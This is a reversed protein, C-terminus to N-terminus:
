RRSTGAPCRAWRRRRRPPGSTSNRRGARGRQQRDRRPPPQHRLRVAAPQVPRAGHQRGRLLRRDARRGAPRGPRLGRGGRLRQAPTAHTLDHGDLTVRGAATPRLGMLAECLETQGNGQVGAVGLIEGARVQFSMGNVWVRGTEDAVTLDSVDLVVEGPKAAEKSVRLQVNRGVMLAALEDETASPPREGVVAGRRLVTITDAIAQVEKLKHSIFVVSTGGDQHAAPHDPVPGRDRGPDAGRDARRPDARDGGQGAGQRDRGAAPHRGAPERGPRGPRDGARLPPVARARGPADQAPGAARFPRTEEIGLTVNEAVTFVPVLM